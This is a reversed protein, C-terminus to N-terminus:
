WMCNLSRSHPCWQGTGGAQGVGARRDWNLCRGKDAGPRAVLGSIAECSFGAVPRGIGDTWDLRTM